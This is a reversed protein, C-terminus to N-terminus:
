RRPPRRASGGFHPAPVNESSRSDSIGGTIVVVTKSVRPAGAAVVRPLAEERM